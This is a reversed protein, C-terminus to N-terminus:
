DYIKDGSWYAQSHENMSKFWETERIDVTKNKEAKTIMNCFGDIPDGRLISKLMVIPAGFGTNQARNEQMWKLLHEVQKLLETNEMVLNLQKTFM